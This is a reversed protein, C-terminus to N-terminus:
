LSERMFQGTKGDIFELDVKKIMKISVKMAITKKIATTQFGYEKGTEQGTELSGKM